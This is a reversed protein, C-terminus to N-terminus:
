CSSGAMAVLFCGARRTMQGTRGLGTMKPISFDADNDRAYGYVDHELIALFTYKNPIAPIDYRDLDGLRITGGDGTEPVDSQYCLSFHAPPEAKSFVTICALFPLDPL